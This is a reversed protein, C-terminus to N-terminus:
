RRATLFDDVRELAAPLSSRGLGVRLRNDTMDFITGPLFLVGKERAVDAVFAEVPVPLRLRPFAMPGAKPAAWEFADSHGAFFSEALPLNALILRRSRELLQPGARLAILSLIEAPASACVTTYDKLRRAAETIAQDRTALWGIRLGALGYGKSMVGISVAQEDLDCAAPLTTAPDYELGRYVEDSVVTVGAERALALLQEFEQRSPLAGTPNHPFNVFIAKTDPRLAQRVADLDLRWGHEADLAIPTVSAGLAPAIRFLSEFAPWVVLAHDGPKLLVHALLFLAEAAGGGCVTVEGVAMRAYQEVIAERLLPHGLTDTYGLDLEDWLARAEPDALQLLEQMSLGDVDSACAIHEVGADWEAFFQEVKCREPIM